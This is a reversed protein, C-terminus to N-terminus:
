NTAYKDNDLKTKLYDRTMFQIDDVLVTVLTSNDFDKVWTNFEEEKMEKKYRQLWADAVTKNVIRWNMDIGKQKAARGILGPEQRTGTLLPQVLLM